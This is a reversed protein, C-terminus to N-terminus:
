LYIRGQNGSANTFVCLVKKVFTYLKRPITKEIEHFKWLAQNSIKEFLAHFTYKPLM